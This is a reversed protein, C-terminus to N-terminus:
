PGLIHFARGEVNAEEVLRKGERFFEFGKQKFFLHSAYGHGISKKLM